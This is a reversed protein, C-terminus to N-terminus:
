NTLLINIVIGAVSILNLIYSIFLIRVGSTYGQIADQEVGFVSEDVLKIGHNELRLMNFSLDINHYGFGFLLLSVGYTFLFPLVFKNM